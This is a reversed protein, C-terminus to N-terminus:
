FGDLAQLKGDAFDRVPMKIRHFCGLLAVKEGTSQRTRDGDGAEIRVARSRCMMSNSCNLRPVPKSGM